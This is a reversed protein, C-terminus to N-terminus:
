VEVQFEFASFKHHNVIKIWWYWIIWELLNYLVNQSFRTWYDM